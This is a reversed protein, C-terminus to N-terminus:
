EDLNERRLNFSARASSLQDEEILNEHSRQRKDYDMPTMSERKRTPSQYSGGLSMLALSSSSPMSTTASSVISKEMHPFDTNHLSSINSSSKPQLNDSIYYSHCISQRNTVIALCTQYRNHGTHIPNFTGGLSLPIIDASYGYQSILYQHMQEASHITVQFFLSKISFPYVSSSLFTLTTVFLM